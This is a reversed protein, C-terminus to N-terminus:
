PQGLEPAGAIVAAVVAEDAGLEPDLAKLVLRAADPLPGTALPLFQRFFNGLGLHVM